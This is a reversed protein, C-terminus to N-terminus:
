DLVLLGKFVSIGGIKVVVESGEKPQEMDIKETLFLLSRSNKEAPLSFMLRGELYVDIAKDQYAPDLRFKLEITTGKKKYAEFEVEGRGVGEQLPFKVEYEWLSRDGFIIAVVLVLVLWVWWPLGIVFELFEM